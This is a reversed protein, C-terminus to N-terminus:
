ENLQHLRFRSPSMGTQKKFYKSFSHIDSFSLKGAIEGINCDHHSLLLKAEKFLITNIFASPTM